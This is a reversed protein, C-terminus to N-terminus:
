HSGRGAPAVNRVDLSIKQALSDEQSLFNGYEAAQRQLKGLLNSTEHHKVEYLSEQVKKAQDLVSRLNEINRVCSSKMDVLLNVLDPLGKYSNIPKETEALLSEYKKLADTAETVIANIDTAFRGISPVAKNNPLSLDRKWGDIRHLCDHLRGSLNNMTGILENNANFLKDKLEDYEKFEKIVEQTREIRKEYSTKNHRLFYKQFFGTVSERMTPKKWSDDGAQYARLQQATEKLAAAGHSSGSMILSNNRLTGYIVDSTKIDSVPPLQMPEVRPKVIQSIATGLEQKVKAASTRVIEQAVDLSQAKNQEVAQNVAFRYDFETASKHIKSVKEPTQQQLWAKVEQRTGLLYHLDNDKFIQGAIVHGVKNTQGQNNQDIKQNASSIAANVQDQIMLIEAIKDPKQQLHHLSELDKVIAQINKGAVPLLYERITKLYADKAEGAEYQSLTAFIGIRGDNFGELIELYFLKAEEPLEKNVQLLVSIKVLWQRIVMQDADETDRIARVLEENYKKFKEDFNAM